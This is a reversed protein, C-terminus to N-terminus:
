SFVECDQIFFAVIIECARQSYRGTKEYLWDVIVSYIFEQNQNSQMCKCYFAKVQTALTDFKYPSVNDIEIFLSRIFDFYDVVDNKITRKIAYPMTDNTKQDIKLSEYSLKVLSEEFLPNNLKELVTRIEGEINFLRYTDKANANEIIRKKLRYWERYEEITRPKDFKTHCHACVALLNNLDNVDDSLRLENELLKEENSLPNAPYIHAIQCINYARGKKISTLSNGCLPCRGGVENSLQLRENPTPERRNDQVNM